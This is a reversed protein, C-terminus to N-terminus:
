LLLYRRRHRPQLLLLVQVLGNPTISVDVGLVQYLRLVHDLLHFLAELNHVVLYLLELVLYRDHIM